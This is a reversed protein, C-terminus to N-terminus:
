SAWDYNGRRGKRRSGVLASASAQNQPCSIWWSRCVAISEALSETSAMVAWAMRALKNALAVAAVKAPRRELLRALWPHHATGHTEAYRIVFLAGITVLTRLYRNGHKSIGALRDKGDIL